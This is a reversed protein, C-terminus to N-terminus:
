PRTIPIVMRLAPWLPMQMSPLWLGVARLADDGVVVVVGTDVHRSRSGVVEHEVAVTEVVEVGSAAHAVTGVAKARLEVLKARAVMKVAEARSFVGGVTEVEPPRLVGDDEFPAPGEAVAITRDEAIGRIEVSTAVFELEPAVM